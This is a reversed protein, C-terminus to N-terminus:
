GVSAPGRWLHRIRTSLLQRETEPLVGFLGFLTFGVLVVV